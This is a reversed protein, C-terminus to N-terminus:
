STPRPFNEGQKHRFRASGCDEICRLAVNFESRGYRSSHLSQLVQPQIVASTRVVCDEWDECLAITWRRLAQQLM